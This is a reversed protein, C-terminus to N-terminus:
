RTTPRTARRLGGITVAAIGLAVAADAFALIVLTEFTLQAVPADPGTDGRVAFLVVLVAVLRMACLWGVLRAQTLLRSQRARDAVARVALFNVTGLACLLVVGAAASAAFAVLPADGGRDGTGDGWALAVQAVDAIAWVLAIM